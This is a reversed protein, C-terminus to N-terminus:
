LASYTKLIENLKQRTMPGCTGTQTIGYKAQFAKVAAETMSLYNGSSTATSVLLGERKLLNQLLKVQENGTVGKQLYSTFSTATTGSGTGSVRTAGLCGSGWCPECAGAKCVYGQPCTESYRCARPKEGTSGSSMGGLDVTKENGLCGAGWCPQCSGNQCSQGQPCTESYRCLKREATTTTSVVPSVTNSSNIRSVGCLGVQSTGYQGGGSMCSAQDAGFSAAGGKVCCGGTTSCTPCAYYKQTSDSGTYTGDTQKVFGLRNVITDIDSSVLPSLSTVSTTGEVTTTKGALPVAVKSSLTTAMQQKITNIDQQLGAIMVMGVAVLILVLFQIFNKRM